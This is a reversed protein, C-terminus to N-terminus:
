TEEGEAEVLMDAGSDRWGGLFDLIPEEPKEILAVANTRRAVRTGDTM